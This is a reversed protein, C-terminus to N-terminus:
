EPLGSLVKDAVDSARVKYTGAAIRSKLDNVKDFRIEPTSALVSKAIQYYGAQESMSFIDKSADAKGNSDTKKDNNSNQAHYVSYTKVVNVVRMDM